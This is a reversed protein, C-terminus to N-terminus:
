APLLGPNLGWRPWLKKQFGKIADKKLAFKLDMHATEASANKYCIFLKFNCNEFL